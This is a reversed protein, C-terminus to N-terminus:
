NGGGGAGGNEGATHVTYIQQEDAHNRVVETRGAADRENGTYQVGTGVDATGRGGVQNREDHAVAAPGDRHNNPENCCSEASQKAKETNGCPVPVHLVVLLIKLAACFHRKKTAVAWLVWTYM